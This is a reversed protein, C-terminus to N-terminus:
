WVVSLLSRKKQMYCYTPIGEDTYVQTMGVANRKQPDTQITEVTGVVVEHGVKKLAIAQERFFSGRIINNENQYWSALVLIRM